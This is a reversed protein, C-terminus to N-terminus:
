APVKELEPLFSKICRGQSDFKESQTVPNLIRFWPQADCGTSASWQWGGNNAALDFDLACCLTANDGTRLDRRFWALGRRFRADLERARAM